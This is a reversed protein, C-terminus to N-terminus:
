LRSAICILNQAAFGADVLLWIGVGILFSVVAVHSVVVRWPPRKFLQRELRKRLLITLLPLIALVLGNGILVFCGGLLLFAAEVGLVL